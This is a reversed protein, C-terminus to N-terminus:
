FFIRYTANFIKSDLSQRHSTSSTFSYSLDLLSKSTIKWSLNPSILREKSRELSRLSENYAFGFQIAGDPFPSWNVGYNMLTDFTSNQEVVGISGFLYMAPFPRFSANFEGRQQFPNQNQAMALSSITKNLTYNINMSLTPHPVINAGFVMSYDDEKVGTETTVYTAGGSLNVSVGKYLDAHNHLYISNTDKARGSITEHRGSYVLNHSLTRLPTAKLSATYLYGVRHGDAADDDERAVRASSSFIGNFRHDLSLGNSLTSRVGSESSKLFLSSDYYLPLSALLRAKVDLNLVQSVTASDRNLQELPRRIFGQIETVLIREPDQFGPAMAAAVQTLPSVVVKIARATVNPFEIQFRFGGLLPGFGASAATQVLEWRPNGNAPDDDTKYVDWIFFSSVMAPLDRDIFVYLTNIETPNVFDLGINRPLAEGGPATVGLSDLGASAGTEGNILAPISALAVATWTDSAAYLGSFPFLQYPVEGDNGSVITTDLRNVTYNSTVNVRKNFFQDSYSIRGSNNLNKTEFRLLRDTADTYVSQFKLDMTKWPAYKVGLLARDTTSDTLLRTGDFTNTRTLQLDVKPLGAPRWGLMAHWDENIANARNVGTAKTTEDRRSYGLGATYLLTNLTLDVSPRLTTVSSNSSADNDTMRGLNKEFIGSTMLRLNPFLSKDLSLSYRQSLNTWKAKAAEGSAGKSRTDIGTYGWELFGNLGEAVAVAPYTASFLCAALTFIVVFGFSRYNAGM